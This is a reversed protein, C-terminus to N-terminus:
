DDNSAMLDEGVQVELYVEGTRAGCSGLKLPAM